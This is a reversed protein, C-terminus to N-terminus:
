PRTAPASEASVRYFVQERFLFDPELIRLLPIDERSLPEKAFNGWWLGYIELITEGTIGYSPQWHGATKALHQLENLMRSILSRGSEMKFSCMLSIV